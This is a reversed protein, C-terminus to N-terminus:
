TGEKTAQGPQAEGNPVKCIVKQNGEQKNGDGGKVQLAVIRPPIGKGRGYGPCTFKWGSFISTMLGNAEEADVLFASYVHHIAFAILWWMIFHHIMRIHQVDIISFVWSTTNWWFGGPNGMGFLAFGTFVQIFYLLVIIGYTLGALANHGMTTPPERRFFFYYQLADKFMGRGEPTFFPVLAKWSAWQNGGFFAWYTRVILSAVFIFAFLMHLARMNGMFMQGYAERASVQIYPNYIYYGTFCLVVICVFNVWHTLRVPIEWVYTPGLRVAPQAPQQPQKEM